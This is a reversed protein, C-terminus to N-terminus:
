ISRRYITEIVASQRQSYVAALESTLQDLEPTTPLYQFHELGGPYHQAFGAAVLRVLSERIAAPSSKISDQVASVMLRQQRHRQLFLLVELTHVSDINEAILERVPRPITETKSVSKSSPNTLSPQRAGLGPM